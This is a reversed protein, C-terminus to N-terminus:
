RLQGCRAKANYIGELILMREKVAFVELEHKLSNNM